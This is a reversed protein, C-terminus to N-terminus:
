REALEAIEGVRERVVTPTPSGGPMTFEHIAVATQEESSLSAGPLYEDLVARRATADLPLESVRRLVAGRDNSSVAASLATREAETVRPVDASVTVSAGDGVTVETDALTTPTGGRRQSVRVRYTGTPFREFATQGRPMRRGDITVDIGVAWSPVDITLTGFTVESDTITGITRASVADVLPFIDFLTELHEDIETLGAATDAGGVAASADYIAVRVVPLDAGEPQAIETAVVWQASTRESARALQERVARPELPLAEVPVSGADVVPQDSALRVASNVTEAVMRAIQGAAAGEANLVVPLIAVGRRDPAEVRLVEPAEGDDLGTGEDVGSDMNIMNLVMPEITYNNLGASGIEQPILLWVPPTGRTRSLHYRAGTWSVADAVYNLRPHSLFRHPGVYDSAELEPDPPGFVFGAYEAATRPDDRTVVVPLGSELHLFVGGQSVVDGLWEYDRLQVSYAVPGVAYSRYMREADGDPEVGRAVAALSDLDGAVRDSVTAVIVATGWRREALVVVEETADGVPRVLGVALDRGREAVWATSGAAGPGSNEADFGVVLEEAITAASTGGEVMVISGRIRGGEGILAFGAPADAPVVRWGAPLRVTSQYGVVEGPLGGAGGQAPAGSPTRMEPIGAVALAERVSGAAGRGYGGNATACGSVLAIIAVACGLLTVPRLRGRIRLLRHANM